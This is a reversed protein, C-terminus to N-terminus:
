EDEFVSNSYDIQSDDNLAALFNNERKEFPSDKEPKGYSFAVERLSKGDSGRNSMVYGMEKETKFIISFDDKESNIPSGLNVALGVKRQDVQAMYVDLGGQGKRGESAFFLTNGGVLNPYLDNKKTNVKEGLNKAVGHTGDSNIDSVYIDYEGYSGPMNSAFFLRKGDESVTPHLASYNSPCVAVVEVNKWQGKVKEAKYIKHVLEKKSFVGYLPKEYVSKTFYATCGDATMAVPADYIDQGDIKEAKRADLGNDDFIQYQGLNHSSFQSNTPLELTKYKGNSSAVSTARSNSEMQYDAKVSALWKTGEALDNSVVTAKMNKQAYDYRDQYNESLRGNNTEKLKSYWFLATEYNQSLFNANGLDEFIETEKFGLNKLKQYNVMSKDTVEYKQNKFSSANTHQASVSCYFFGICCGFAVKYTLANKM